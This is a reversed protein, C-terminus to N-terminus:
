LLPLQSDAPRATVETFCEPVDNAPSNVVPGVPYARLGQVAFPRLLDRGDDGASPQLWRQQDQTELIVPMRDHIPKLLANAITTIITFSDVADASQPDRWREWLGAFAFAESEVPTIRWPRRQGQEIKWEYFGDAPVLCRRSLFAARFAPTSAVSEGRAMILRNGIKRDKAWSPILGWRLLHLHRAGDDGLRVVPVEQTPAINYRPALNPVEAFGFLRRLVEVPTTLSYRGCM